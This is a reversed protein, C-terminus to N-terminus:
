GSHPLRPFSPLDITRSEIITTRPQSCRETARAMGILRDTMAMLNKFQDEPLQGGCEVGRDAIRRDLQEGMVVTQMHFVSSLEAFGMLLNREIPNSTALALERVPGVVQQNLLRQVDRWAEKRQDPGPLRTRGEASSSEHLRALATAYDNPPGLALPKDKGFQVIGAGINEAAELLAEKFIATSRRAAIFRLRELSEEDARWLGLEHLDVGMFRELQHLHDVVAKLPLPVANALELPTWGLFVLQARIPEASVERSEAVPCTATRGTGSDEGNTMNQMVRRIPDDPHYESQNGNEAIVERFMALDSKFGGMGFSDCFQDVQELPLDDLGVALTAPLGCARLMVVHELDFAVFLDGAGQELLRQTCGDRLVEFIPLADEALCGAHTMLEYPQHTSADRLVVFSDSGSLAPTLVVAEGEKAVAIGSELMNGISSEEALVRVVEAPDSPSIYVDEDVDLFGLPKQTSRRCHKLFHEIMEAKTRTSSM